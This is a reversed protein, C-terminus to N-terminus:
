KPEVSWGAAEPINATRAGEHCYTGLILIGRVKSISERLGGRQSGRSRELTVCGM